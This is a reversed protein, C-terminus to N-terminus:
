TNFSINISKCRSAAARASDHREGTTKADNVESTECEKHGLKGIDGRNGGIRCFRPVANARVGLCFKQAAVGAWAAMLVFLAVVIHTQHARMGIAIGAIVIIVGANRPKLCENKDVAAFQQQWAPLTRQRMPRM